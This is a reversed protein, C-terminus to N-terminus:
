FIRHKKNLKMNIKIKKSKINMKDGLFKKWDLTFKNRPHLGPGYLEPIINHSRIKVPALKKNFKM